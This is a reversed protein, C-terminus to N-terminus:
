QAVRCQKLEDANKGSLFKATKYFLIEKLIVGLWGMKKLHLRRKINGTSLFKKIIDNKHKYMVTSNTLFRADLKYKCFESGTSDNDAALRGACHLM